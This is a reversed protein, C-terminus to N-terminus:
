KVMLPRLPIFNISEDLIVTKDLFICNSSELSEDAVMLCILYGDKVMLGTPPAGLTKVMVITPPHSANNPTTLIHVNGTFTNVDPCLDIAYHGNVRATTLGEKATRGMWKFDDESYSVEFGQDILTTLLMQTLPPPYLLSIDMDVLHTNIEKFEDYMSKFGEPNATEINLTETSKPVSNDFLVPHVGGYSFPSDVVPKDIVHSRISFISSQENLGLKTATEENINLRGKDDVKGVIEDDMKILSEAIKEPKENVCFTRTSSQIYHDVIDTKFLRGFNNGHFSHKTEKDKFFDSALISDIKDKLEKYDQDEDSLFISDKALHNAINCIVMFEKNAVYIYDANYHSANTGYKSNAESEDFVKAGFDIFSNMSLAGTLFGSKTSVLVGLENKILAQLFDDKIKVIVYKM